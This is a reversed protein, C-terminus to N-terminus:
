SSRRRSCRIAPPTGTTPAPDPRGAAGSDRGTSPSVRWSFRETVSACPQRWQRRRLPPEPPDHLLLAAGLPQQVPV